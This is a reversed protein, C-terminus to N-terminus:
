RWTPSARNTHACPFATPINYHHVSVQHAALRIDDGLRLTCQPMADRSVPCLRDQPIDSVTTPFSSWFRDWAARHELSFRSPLKDMIDYVLKKNAEVDFRPMSADQTSMAFEAPVPLGGPGESNTKNVACSRGSMFVHM